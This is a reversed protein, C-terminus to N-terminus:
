GGGADGANNADHNVTTGDPCPPWKAVVTWTGDANKTKTVNTPPPINDKFGKVVGDANVDPVDTMTFTGCITM